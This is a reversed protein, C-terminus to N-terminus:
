IPAPYVSVEGPKHRDFRSMDPQIVSATLLDLKMQWRFLSLTAGEFTRATNGWEAASFLRGGGYSMEQRGVRATVGGQESNGVELYALRLELPDQVAATRNNYGGARSDQGQVYMRLWPLPKISLDLRLRSLFDADNNGPEFGIGTQGEFRGRFQGRLTLWNPLGPAQGTAANDKPASTNPGGGTDGAIATATAQAM